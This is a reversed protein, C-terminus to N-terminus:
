FTRLKIKKLGEPSQLKQRFIERYHELNENVGIQRNCALRLDDACEKTHMPCADAGTSSYGNLQKIAGSVARVSYPVPLPM